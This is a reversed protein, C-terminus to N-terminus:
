IIHHNYLCFLSVRMKKFKDKHYLMISPECQNDIISVTQNLTNSLNVSSPGIRDDM